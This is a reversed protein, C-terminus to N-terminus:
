ICLYLLGLAHYQTINSSLSVTQAGSQSSGGGFFGSGTSVSGFYGRVKIHPFLHYASVLAAFSITLNKDVIAAKFFREIGQVMSPDIIRCLARIANPRWQRSSRQYGSVRRMDKHQFLKTTGFFLTMTSFTKGVYLLYMIRTLLARCKLPSLPSENFVRAEQIIITKINHYSSRVVNWRRRFQECLTSTTWHLRSRM